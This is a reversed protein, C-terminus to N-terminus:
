ENEHAWKLTEIYDNEAANFCTMESVNMRMLMNRSSWKLQAPVRRRMGHVNMRM